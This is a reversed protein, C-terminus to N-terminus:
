VSTLHGGDHSIEAIKNLRIMKLDHEEKMVTRNLETLAIKNSQKLIELEKKEDFTEVMM